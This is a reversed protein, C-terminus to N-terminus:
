SNSRTHAVADGATHTRPQPPTPKRRAFGICVHCRVTLFRGALDAPCDPFREVLEEVGKKFQEAKAEEDVAGAGFWGGVKGM